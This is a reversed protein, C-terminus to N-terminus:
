QDDGGQADPQSYHVPGKKNRAYDRAAHRHGPHSTDRWRGNPAQIVDGVTGTVLPEREILFDLQGEFM